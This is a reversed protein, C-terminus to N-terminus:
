GHRTWPCTPPAATVPDTWHVRLGYRREALFAVTWRRGCRPCVIPHGTLPDLDTGARRLAIVHGCPTTLILRRDTVRVAAPDPGMGTM